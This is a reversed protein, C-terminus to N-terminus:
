DNTVRTFAYVSTGIETFEFGGDGSRPAYSSILTSIYKGEERGPSAKQVVVINCRHQYVKIPRLTKIEETWYEPAIEDSPTQTGANVAKIYRAHTQLAATALGAATLSDESTEPKRLCGAIFFLCGAVCAM